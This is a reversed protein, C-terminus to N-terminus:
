PIVALPLPSHRALYSATGGLGSFHGAGHTGIVILGAQHRAATEPLTVRPDLNSVELTYEVSHDRLQTLAEETNARVQEDFREVHGPPRVCGPDTCRVITAPIGLDACFSASWTLVRQAVPSCDVGVLVRTLPKPHQTPQNPILILPRDTTFLLRRSVSGLLLGSLPGLGRTGVVLISANLENATKLLAEAAPAQIATVEIGYLGAGHLSQAAASATHTNMESIDDDIGHLASHAPRTWAAVAKIPLDMARAISLAWAAANSANPSDDVGVLLPGHIHDTM